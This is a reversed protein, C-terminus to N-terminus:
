QFNAIFNQYLTEVDEINETESIDSEFQKFLEYISAPEQLKDYLLLYKELNEIIKDAEVTNTEDVETTEPNDPITLTSAYDIIELYKEERNDDTIVFGKSIFWNNLITFEYFDILSMKNIRSNYIIDRAKIIKIQKERELEDSASDIVLDSVDLTNELLKPIFVKKGENLARAVTEFITWSFVEITGDKVGTFAIENNNISIVEYTDGRDLVNFMLKM